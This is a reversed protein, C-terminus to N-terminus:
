VEVIDEGGFKVPLFEEHVSFDSDRSGSYSVDSAVSDLPAHVDGEALMNRLSIKSSNKSKQELYHSISAEWEPRSIEGDNDVDAHAIMADIGEKTVIMGERKLVEYLEDGDITGGGDTDSNDFIQMFYKLDAMEGTARKLVMTDLAYTWEWPSWIEVDLTEVGIPKLIDYLAAHIEKERAVIMREENVLHVVDEAAARDDVSLDVMAALSGESIARVLATGHVSVRLLSQEDKKQSTITPITIRTNKDLVYVDNRVKTDVGRLGHKTRLDMVQLNLDSIENQLTSLLGWSNETKLTIHFHASMKGDGGTCKKPNTAELHKKETSKFHSICRLLFFPSTIASFLVAFVVSAYVDTEIVGESLAFAAIIFSFEGRCTMSLGVVFLDRKYPDHIADKEAKEFHPVYFAVLSKILVCTGWFAFGMGLVRGSAFEKLPVQFGISAAFFIRLLWQIISHTTHMFKQYAGKVQSFTVGALFAGTLYSSKTYNLLPIYAMTLATLLGFMASTKCKKPFLPLIKTDIFRPLFTIAPYGLVILFGFSSILPIFYEIVQPDEKVLVQFMSLLVLGIIDDVVCAAIILQGVPTNIMDGGGLASAAVGLSTPAFSAGIALGAKSSIGFLYSMLMGVAVPLLSGTFAIAMARTGTQKLQAVDLEVGAELLLAILGIEGILVFAKKYPVFDALPPGLLFGTFIEGVLAPMGLSKTILGAVYTSILFVLVRYIDEYSVHVTIESDHEDGESGNENESSACCFAVFNLLLLPLLFLQMCNMPKFTVM